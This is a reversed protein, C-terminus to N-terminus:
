AAPRGINDHWRIDLWAGEAGYGTMVSKRKFRPELGALQAVAEIAEERTSYPGIRRKTREAKYHAWYTQEMTHSGNPKTEPLAGSICRQQREM